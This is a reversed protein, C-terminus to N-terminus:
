PKSVAGASPNGTPAPLGASASPAKEDNWTDVVCKWSGDSEKRWVTAAKGPIAIPKGDPGTLSTTTKALAYAMDGGQAVRVESTEWRINFGPIKFSETVFKRLATKGVMLPEGPALVVAGESWFSLTKEVDKAAIAAMWPQDTALIARREAELDPKSCGLAALMAGGAVWSLRLM